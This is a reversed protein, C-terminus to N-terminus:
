STQIRRDEYELCRNILDIACISVNNDILPKPNFQKKIIKDYMIEDEKDLEESNLKQGLCKNTDALDDFPQKGTLLKFLSIGFAWVDCSKNYHSLIMEPSLFARTGSIEDLYESDSCNISLGFDILKASCNINDDSKVM